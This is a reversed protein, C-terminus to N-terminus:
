CIEASRTRDLAQVKKMYRLEKMRAAILGPADPDLYRVSHLLETGEPYLGRRVPLAAAGGLYHSPM